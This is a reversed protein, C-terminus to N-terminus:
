SFVNKIWSNCRFFHDLHKAHQSIQLFPTTSQDEEEQHPLHPLGAARHDSDGHLENPLRFHSRDDHNSLQHQWPIWQAAHHAQQGQIICWSAGENPVFLSRSSFVCPLDWYGRCSRLSWENCWVPAPVSWWFFFFFLILIIAWRVKMLGVKFKVGCTISPLCIFIRGKSYFQMLFWKM